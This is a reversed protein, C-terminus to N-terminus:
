NELRTEGPFEIVQALEGSVNHEDMERVRPRLKRVEGAKPNLFNRPLGTCDELDSYYLRLSSLMEERTWIVERLVAEVSNFILKPSEVPLDKEFPEAQHWGKRSYNRWLSQSAKENLFDLDEARKLMMKISLKWRRKLVRFLELNVRVVEKVFSTQPFLIAAAFRHAQKELLKFHEPTKVFVEPLRKHLILHGLEHAADFRSRASSNKDSNLIVYPRDDIWMSFADLEEAELSTRVVIVGNNELLWVFNSIPGDGLGWFKRVQHAIDEIQGNSLKVPDAPVIIAPFNVSPFEVFTELISLFRILWQFKTEARIRARKTAASMSRYFIPSGKEVPEISDDVFFDPPFKLVECIKEFIEPTPTRKGNEYNSITARTVGIQEALLVGTYGRAERAERLKHGVFGDFLKGQRIDKSKM